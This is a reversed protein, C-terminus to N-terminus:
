GDVGEPLPLSSPGDQMAERGAAFLAVMHVCPGAALLQEQFQRCGCRGFLVRGMESVVLHVESQDGARGDFVWDRYVIERQENAHPGKLRQVRTTQRPQCTVEVQGAAVLAAAEEAVADVPLDPPQDFLVRHRYERAELDYIARGQRCAEFLAPDNDPTAPLHYDRALRQELNPDPPAPAVLLSFGGPATFRQGSWGTLGLEFRMGPLHVVYFSPMARGKLYVDVAEAFPLLPELLRLRRRGWVRVVKSRDFGHESGKLRIKYEWPELVLQVPQDPEFEYRLARPSVKSKVASLYRIAAMLDVPRARFRTGAMAMAAQVQLFGAVWAPPVDVKKEFRGGAGSTEVAFGEPGLRFWTERSSRMEGLAAWLWGTFDVNTTGFAVEGEPEFLSHDLVLQAYASQDGSFVECFLRDPHVTMIPDLVFDGAQWLDASWVVQGLARLATRLLFVAEPKVRAHFRVPRQASCTLSLMARDRDSSLASPSAYDFIM